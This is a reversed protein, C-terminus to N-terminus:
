DCSMIKHSIDMSVVFCIMCNVCFFKNVSVGSEGPEYDGSEEFKRLGGFLKMWKEKLRLFEEESEWAVCIIKETESGTMLGNDKKCKPCAIPIRINM